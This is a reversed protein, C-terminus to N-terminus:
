GATLVCHLHRRYSVEPVPLRKISSLPGLGRVRLYTVGAKLRGRNIPPRPYKSVDFQLLRRFRLCLHLITKKMENLFLHNDDMIEREFILYLLVETRYIIPVAQQDL